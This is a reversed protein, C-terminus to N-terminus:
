KFTLLLRGPMPKYQHLDAKSTNRCSNLIHDILFHSYVASPKVIDPQHNRQAPRDHDMIAAGSEVAEDEPHGGDVQCYKAYPYKSDVSPTMMEM